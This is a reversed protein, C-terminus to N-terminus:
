SRETVRMEIKSLGMSFLFVTNSVIVIDALPEGFTNAVVQEDM